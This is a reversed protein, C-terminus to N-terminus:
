AQYKLYTIYKKSLQFVLIYLYIHLYNELLFIIHNDFIDYSSCLDNAKVIKDQIEPCLSKHIPCFPLYCSYSWFTAFINGHIIHFCKVRM